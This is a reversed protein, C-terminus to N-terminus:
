HSDVRKWGRSPRACYDMAAQGAGLEPKCATWNRCSDCRSGHWRMGGPAPCFAIPSKGEGALWWLEINKRQSPSLPDLNRKPRYDM